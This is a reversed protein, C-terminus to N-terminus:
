NIFEEWANQFTPAKGRSLKASTLWEEPFTDMEQLRNMMDGFSYKKTITEGKSYYHGETGAIFFDRIKDRAEEYSDARMPVNGTCVSGSAQVHGLPYWWLATDKNIDGEKLAYIRLDGLSSYFVLRRPQPVIVPIKHFLVFGTKEPPLVTAFSFGKRKGEADMIECYKEIGPGLVSKPVEFSVSKRVERTTGDLLRCLDTVPMERTTVEGNNEEFTVRFTVISREEAEGEIRLKSM